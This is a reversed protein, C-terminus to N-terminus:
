QAPIPTEGEPACITHAVTANPPGALAVIDGANGEDVPVRELGRFALVKMIRGTEILTGDHDLVKVTQNPKVSGSTIRGTVVRGLYPNAELITGRLRFPGDEVVPAKVHSLMLDFMPKMGDGHSGDLSTAM